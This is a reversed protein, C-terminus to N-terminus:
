HAAGSSLRNFTVDNSLNRRSQHNAATEQEPNLDRQPNQKKSYSFNNEAFESSSM